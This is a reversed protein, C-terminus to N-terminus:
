GTGQVSAGPLAAPECGLEGRVRVCAPSCPATIEGPSVEARIQLVYREETGRQSLSSPPVDGVVLGRPPPSSLGGQAVPGQRFEGGPLGVQSDIFPREDRQNMTLFLCKKKLTSGSSEGLAVADCSGGWLAAADLLSSPPPVSSAMVPVVGLSRNGGM